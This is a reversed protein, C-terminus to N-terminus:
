EDTEAITITFIVQGPPTTDQMELFRQTSMETLGMHGIRGDDMRLDLGPHDIIGMASGEVGDEARCEDTDRGPCRQVGVVRYTDKSMITM